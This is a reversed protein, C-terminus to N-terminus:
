EGRFGEPCACLGDPPQCTGNNACLPAGNVNEDCISTAFHECYQGIAPPNTGSCDCGWGNEDFICVSNHFCFHDQSGCIQIPIECYIGTFNNPCICHEFNNNYTENILHDIGDIDEIDFDKGGEACQGGNECQTV